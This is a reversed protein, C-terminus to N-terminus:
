GTSGREIFRCEMRTVPYGQKVPRSMRKLREVAWGGMARHPLVLTSLQPRLHRCLEDDDYGIVAIDGPIALGAERLANFCGSAMKDNQCFIATPRDPLSLFKQTADFGASPSWNGEVVLDPDFPIGAEALAKRYGKLRDQAADMWPEGTITAIRRHGRGILEETARRGGALEDPVIAPLAHDASYCNSLVVPVPLDYLFQPLTIRRTFITMYILGTIGSRLMTEIAREEMAANGLTQAVLILVDDEWCAQRAGDIANVSEPSTALQDVVFGICGASAPPIGQRQGAASGYGLVRAAEFVRARMEESIKIDTARNLVFSVTAQSCGAAKAVDTM